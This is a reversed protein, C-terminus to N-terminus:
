RRDWILLPAGHSSSFRQDTERYQLDSISRRRAVDNSATDPVFDVRYHGPQDTPNAEGSPQHERLNAHDKQEVQEHQWIRM